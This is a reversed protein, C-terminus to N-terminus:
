WNCHNDIWLTMSGLAADEDAMCARFATRFQAFAPAGGTLLVPAEGTASACDRAKAAVQQVRAPPALIEGVLEGRREQSAAHFRPTVVAFRTRRIDPRACPALEVAGTWFSDAPRLFGISAKPLPWRLEAAAPSVMVFGLLAALALRKIHM